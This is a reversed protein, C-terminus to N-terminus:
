VGRMLNKKLWLSFYHYLSYHKKICGSFVAITKISLFMSIYALLSTSKFQKSNYLSDFLFLFFVLVIIEGTKILHRKANKKCKM